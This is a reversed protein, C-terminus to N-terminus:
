ILNNGYSLGNTLSTPYIMKKVTTHHTCIQYPKQDCKQPPQDTTPFPHICYQRSIRPSPRSNFGSAKENNRLPINFKSNLFYGVLGWRATLYYRPFPLVWAQPISDVSHMSTGTGDKTIQLVLGFLPQFFLYLQFSQYLHQLRLSIAFKCILPRSSSTM